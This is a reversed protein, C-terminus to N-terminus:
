ILEVTYHGLETDMAIVRARVISGITLGHKPTRYAPLKGPSVGNPKILWSGGPLERIVKGDVYMGVFLDQEIELKNSKSDHVDMALTIRHFEEGLDIKTGKTEAALIEANPSRMGNLLEIHKMFRRSVQSATYESLHLVSDECIWGCFWKALAKDCYYNEEACAALYRPERLFLLMTIGSPSIKLRDRTDKLVACYRGRFEGVEQSETLVMGKSILEGLCNQAKRELFGLSVMKAIVSEAQVYHETLAIGRRNYIMSLELLVCLTCLSQDEQDELDTKFLNVTYSNLSDYYRNTGRILIDLVTRDSLKHGKQSAIMLADKGSIFGSRCFELFIDLGTRISRGSMGILLSRAESKTDFASEYMRRLFTSLMAKSIELPNGSDLRYHIPEKKPGKEILDIVLEIRKKIVEAFPPPELQFRLPSRSIDLPAVDKYTEYTIDRLPLIVLCKLRDQLFRASQFVELQEEKVRKDANDFCLVMLRQREGCLHRVLACALGVKDEFLRTLKDAIMEQLKTSEKPLAALPGEITEKLEKRFITKLGEFTLLKSSSESQCLQDIVDQLLVSDRIQKDKPFDNLNLRIWLTSDKIAQPLAVAYLHDVFSTKGCGPAGILLLIQNVLKNGQSLAEVVETPEASNTIPKSGKVVTKRAYRIVRDIEQSYKKREGSSVYANRAIMMRDPMSEPLFINRFEIALRDGIANHTEERQRVEPRATGDLPQYIAKGAKGRLTLDVCQDLASRNAADIFDSFAITQKESLSELRFDIEATDTPCSILNTGDTAIVRLVPNVNPPFHANIEVGYQRAERLAKDLDSGPRKAEVIMVPVRDITVVYDPAFSEARKDKNILVKRVYQKTLIESECYGLGLPSQQTLLQYVQKQEVDSETVSDSVRWSENKSM